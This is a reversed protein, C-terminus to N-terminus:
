LFNGKQFTGELSILGLRENFVGAVYALSDGRLRDHVWVDPAHEPISGWTLSPNQSFVFELYGIADDSASCAINIGAIYEQARLVHSAKHAFSRKGHLETQLGGYVMELGTIHDGTDAGFISIKTISLASIDSFSTNIGVLAKEACNLHYKVVDPTALVAMEDLPLPLAYNLWFGLLSLLRISM